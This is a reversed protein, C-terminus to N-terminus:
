QIINYSERWGHRKCTKTKTIFQGTDLQLPQTTKERELLLIYVFFLIFNQSNTYGNNTDEFVGQVLKGKNVYYQTFPSKFTKQPHHVTPTWEPEYTRHKSHEILHGIFLADKNLTITESTTNM